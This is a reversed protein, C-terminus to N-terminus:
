ICGGLAKALGNRTGGYGRVWLREGSASAGATAAFLLGLLSAAALLCVLSRTCRRTM